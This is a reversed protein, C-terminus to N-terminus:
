VHESLYAAMSWLAKNIKVDQDIAKIGKTTSRRYNNSYGRQGGKIINEQIVNFTTWLDKGADERRRPTLMQEPRVPIYNVKEADVGTKQAVMEIQSPYGYAVVPKEGVQQPHVNYKFNLASRAFVHRQQDSLQIQRFTDIQEMMPKTNDLLQFCAAISEDIAKTNHRVSISGFQEGTVLGNSCLMQFAGLLFKFASSRDHSNFMIAEPFILNGNNLSIPEIDPHRFRVLHKNTDLRSTKNARTQQAAVPLWGADRLGDVVNITPIFSYRDSVEQDPSTAFIAPAIRNLQDNSLEPRYKNDSAIMM